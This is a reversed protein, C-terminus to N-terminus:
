CGNGLGECVCACIGYCCAEGCADACVNGAQGMQQKRVARKYEKTKAFQELEALEQKYDERDPEEKVARKLYKRQEGYWKKEKYILSQLYYKRGSVTNNKNLVAQAMDPSGQEIFEQAMDLSDAVELLEKSEELEALEKKYDENRPEAKVAKKLFKLQEGYWKRAKYLRSQIYYKRGSNEKVTNLIEQAKEFKGIAIIKDTELEALAILEEVKELPEKKEEM